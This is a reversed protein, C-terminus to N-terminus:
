VIMMLIFIQILLWILAILSIWRVTNGPEKFKFIITAPGDVSLTPIPLPTRDVWAYLKEVEGM